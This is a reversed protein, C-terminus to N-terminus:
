EWEHLAMDDVWVPTKEGVYGGQINYDFYEMAEEYDMDKMLLDICIKKSYALRLESNFDSVVGLLADDLETAHLFGDDPYAQRIIDIKKM